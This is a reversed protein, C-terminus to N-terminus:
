SLCLGPPLRIWLRFARAGLHPAACGGCEQVGSVGALHPERAGGGVKMCTSINPAPTGPTRKRFNQHGFYPQSPRRVDGGGSWFCIVASVGVGPVLPVEPGAPDVGFSQRCVSPSGASRALVRAWRGLGGPVCRLWGGHQYLKSMAMRPIEHVRMNKSARVGRWIPM